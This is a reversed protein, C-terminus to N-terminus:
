AINNNKRFNEIYRYKDDSSDFNKIGNLFDRIMNQNKSALINTSEVFNNFVLDWDSATLIERSELTFQNSLDTDEISLYTNLWKGIDYNADKLLDAMELLNQFMDENNNLLDKTRNTFTLIKDAGDSGQLLAMILERFRTKDEESSIKSYLESINAGLKSISLMQNANNLISNMAIDPSKDFNPSYYNFLTSYDVGNIKMGEGGKM